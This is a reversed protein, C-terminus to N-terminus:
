TYSNQKSARKLQAMAVTEFDTVRNPFKNYVYSKWYNFASENKYEMMRSVAYTITAEETKLKRQKHQLHKFKTQDKFWKRTNVFGSNVNETDMYWAPYINSFDFEPHNALWREAIRARERYVTMIRECDASTSFKHFYKESLRYAKEREAPYINKDKFLVSIVFEVLQISYRRLREEQRIRHKELKQAYEDDMDVSTNIKAVEKQPMPAGFANLAVPRRVSTNIKPSNGSANALPMPDSDGTNQYFTRSHEGSTISLMPAASEKEHEQINTTIIKNILTNKNNCYPTCISRLTEQITIDISNQLIASLPDYEENKYDSVPVMERNLHLEFDRQTGHNVKTEIIGADILRELLRYITAESKKTRGSMRKRNTLLVVEQMPERAILSQTDKDKFIFLMKAMDGKAARVLDQWVERHASKLFQMAKDGADRALAVKTNYEAAKADYLAIIAPYHKQTDIYPLSINRM